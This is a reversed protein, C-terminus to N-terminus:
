RNSSRRTGARTAATGGAADDDRQLARRASNTDKIAATFSRSATIVALATEGHFFGRRIEGRPHKPIKSTSM